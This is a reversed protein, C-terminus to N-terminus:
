RGFAQGISSFEPQIFNSKKSIRAASKVQGQSIRSAMKVYRKAKIRM